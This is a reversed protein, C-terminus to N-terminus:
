RRAREEGLRRALQDRLHANDSRLAAIEERLSDLRQRLSATSAQQDSPVTPAIASPQLRLRVIADRLEDQRYLWARSVGATRAVATFTVPRASRDLAEIAARARTVARQHRQAAARILHHTNDARTV